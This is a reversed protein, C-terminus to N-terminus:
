KRHNYKPSADEFMCVKQIHVTELVLKIETGLSGDFSKPCQKGDFDSIMRKRNLLVRLYGKGNQCLAELIMASEVSSAAM